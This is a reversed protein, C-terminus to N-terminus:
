VNAGDNTAAILSKLFRKLTKASFARGLEEKLKQRAVKLAQANAQVCAKVRPLDEAKFIM